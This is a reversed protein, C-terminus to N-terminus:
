LAENLYDRLKILDADTMDVLVYNHKNRKEGIDTQDAELFNKNDGPRHVVLRFKSNTTEKTYTDM